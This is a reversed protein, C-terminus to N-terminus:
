AAKKTEQSATAGAVGKGDAGGSLVKLRFRAHTAELEEHPVAARLMWLYFAAALVFYSLIVIAAVVGM